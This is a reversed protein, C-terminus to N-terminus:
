VVSKRDTPDLKELTFPVRSLMTKIHDIWFLNEPNYSMIIDPNYLHVTDIFKQVIECESKVLHLLIKETAGFLIGINGILKFHPDNELGIAIKLPKYASGLELKANESHVLIWLAIIEDRDYHFKKNEPCVAIPEITMITLSNITEYDTHIDLLSAKGDMPLRAKENQNMKKDNTQFVFMEKETWPSIGKRALLKNNQLAEAKQNIM